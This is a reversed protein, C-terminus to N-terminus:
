VYSRELRALEGAVERCRLDDGGAERVAELAADLQARTRRAGGDGLHARVRVVYDDTIKGFRLEDVLARYARDELDQSLWSWVWTARAQALDEIGKHRRAENLVGSADDLMQLGVGVERGFRAIAEVRESDAGAVIAGLTTALELLGATKRLTIARVVRSVEDVPVEWIRISLDLAQGEHCRALCRAIREHARLRVPDPLAMESLLVQPWFYLWNGANLAVPTGHLLHLAPAGRRETSGDEIDDVVLSGAHLAEVLLGLEQPCTGAVGGALRFGLDVLRARFLKSPRGLFERLPAILARERERAAADGDECPTSSWRDLLAGLATTRAPSPIAATM